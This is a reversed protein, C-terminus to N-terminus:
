FWTWYKSFNIFKEWCGQRNKPKSKAARRARVRDSRSEQSESEQAHDVIIVALDRAHGAVKNSISGLLFKAAGTLGRRGVVITSCGELNAEDLIDDAIDNYQPQFKTSIAEAAFGGQILKARAQAFISQWQEGQEKEWDAITEERQQHEAETLIHGDDWMSPPLGPLIHVLKIELGPTHGFTNAIYEVAHMASESGDLPILLKAPM